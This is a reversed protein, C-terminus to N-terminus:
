EEGPAALKQQFLALEDMLNGSVKQFKLKKAVKKPQPNKRLEEERCATEDIKEFVRQKFESQVPQDQKFDPLNYYLARLEESSLGNLVFARFDNAHRQLIQEKNISILALEPNRQLRKRVDENILRDPLFEDKLKEWAARNLPMEKEEKQKKIRKQEEQFEPCKEMEAILQEYQINAMERERETATESMIVELEKKMDGQIDELSRMPGSLGQNLRPVNMENLKTLISDLKDLKELQTLISDIDQPVVGKAPTPSSLPIPLAPASLPSPAPIAQSKKLSIELENVEERLKRLRVEAFKKNAVSLSRLLENKKKLLQNEEEDSFVELGNKIDFSTLEQMVSLSANEGFSLMTKKLLLDLQVIIAEKRALEAELQVIRTDVDTSADSKSVHSFSLERQLNDLRCLVPLLAEAVAAKLRGDTEALPQVVLSEVPPLPRHESKFISAGAMFPSVEGYINTGTQKSAHYTSAVLRARERRTLNSSNVRPQAMDSAKPLSATTQGLEREIQDIEKKLSNVSGDELYDGARTELDFLCSKRQGIKNRILKEKQLLADAVVEADEKIIDMTLDEKKGRKLYYDFTGSLQVEGATVIARSSDLAGSPENPQKFARIWFPEGDLELVKLPHLCEGLLYELEEAGASDGGSVLIGLVKIQAYVLDIHACSFTFNELYVANLESKKKTFKTEGPIGSTILQISVYIDKLDCDRPSCFKRLSGITLQLEGRNEEFISHRNTPLPSIGYKKTRPVVSHGKM